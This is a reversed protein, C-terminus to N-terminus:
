PRRGTRSSRSRATRRRMPATRMTASSAAASRRACGALSRRRRAQARYRLRRDGVNDRRALAALVLAIERAHHRDRVHEPRHEAPKECVIERPMPDEPDVDREADERHIRHSRLMRRRTRGCRRARMSQIPAASMMAAVVGIRSPSDFTSVAPPQSRGITITGSVTPVTSVTSSSTHSRSARAGIIGSRSKMLRMKATALRIVNVSDITIIAM